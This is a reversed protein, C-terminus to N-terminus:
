ASQEYELESEYEAMNESIAFCDDIERPINELVWDSDGDIGYEDNEGDKFAGCFGMGGEYYYATVTFGLEELKQYAEVPPSWATDFFVGISTDTQDYIDADLVDWKTGWNNVAFGYESECDAPIPIFERLFSDNELSAVARQIMSPDNHELTLDNSCYNPM